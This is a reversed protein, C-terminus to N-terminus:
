NKQKAWLDILYFFYIELTFNSSTRTEIIQERKMIRMLFFAELSMAGCWQREAIENIKTRDYDLMTNYWYVHQTISYLAIAKIGSRM